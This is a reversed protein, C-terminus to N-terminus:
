ITEETIAAHRTGGTKFQTLQANGGNEARLTEEHNKEAHCMAASIVIEAGSIKTAIGITDANNNADTEIRLTSKILHNLNTFLDVPIRSGIEPDLLNVTTEIQEQEPVKENLRTFLNKKM